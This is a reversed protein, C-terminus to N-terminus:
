LIVLACPTHNCNCSCYSIRTCGNKNCGEIPQVSGDEGLYNEFFGMEVEAIVNEELAAAELRANEIALGQM